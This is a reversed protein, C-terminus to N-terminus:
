SAGGETRAIEARLKAIETEHHKVQQESTIFFRGAYMRPDPLRSRFFRM